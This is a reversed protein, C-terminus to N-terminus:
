FLESVHLQYLDCCILVFLLYRRVCGLEKSSRPFPPTCSLILECQQLLGWNWIWHSHHLTLPSQKDVASLHTHHVQGSYRPLDAWGVNLGILIFVFHLICALLALSHELRQVLAFDSLCNLKDHLFLLLRLSHTRLGFQFSEEGRNASEVELIREVEEVRQYIQFLDRFSRKEKREGRVDSLWGWLSFLVLFVISVWHTLCCFLLQSLPDVVRVLVCNLTLFLHHRHLHIIESTHHPFELVRRLAVVRSVISRPLFSSSSFEVGACLLTWFYEVSYGTAVHMNVWGTDLAFGVEIELGM